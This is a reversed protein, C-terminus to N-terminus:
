RTKLRMSHALFSARRKQALGRLFTFGVITKLGETTCKQPSHTRYDLKILIILDFLALTLAILQNHRVPLTKLRGFEPMAPLETKVRLDDLGRAV